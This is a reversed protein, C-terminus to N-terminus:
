HPFGVTLHRKNPNGGLAVQTLSALSALPSIDSIKNGDLELETLNACYEIGTLDRINRSDAILKRLEGLEAATIEDDPGKGLAERVAAALNEDPFTITEDGTPMEAPEEEPLSVAEETVLEEEEEETVAPGCSTMVLVAVMLCSVVLWISKKKM